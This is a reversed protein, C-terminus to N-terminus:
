RRAIFNLTYTVMGRCDVMAGIGIYRYHHDLLVRRHSPSRLMLRLAAKANRARALNQGAPRVREFPLRVTHVLHAGRALRASHVRAVRRLARHGRLKPRETARRVHRVRKLLAREQGPVVIARACSPAEVPIAAAPSAPVIAAAAACAAASLLSGPMVKRM